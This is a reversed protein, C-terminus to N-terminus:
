GTTQSVTPAGSYIKCFAEEVGRPERSVATTYGYYNCREQYVSTLIQSRIQESLKATKKRSVTKVDILYLKATNKRSVTRFDILYLKATNKRSVTRVDILYLKATKKKSVTRVDSLTESNDKKM